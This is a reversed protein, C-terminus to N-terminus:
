CLPHPGVEWQGPFVCPGKTLGGPWLWEQRGQGAEAGRRGAREWGEHNKCGVQSDPLLCAWLPLAQAGM